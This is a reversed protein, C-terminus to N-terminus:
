EKKALDSLQDKMVALAESASLGDTRAHDAHTVLRHVMSDRRERTKAKLEEISLGDDNKTVGPGGAAIQRQINGAKAALIAVAADFRAEVYVPDKGDLVAAADTKLIVAKKVALDDMGDKIEVQAMRAADMLKSKAAVAADIRVPDNAEKLQAVAADARAKETSLTEDATKKAAAKEADFADVRATLKSITEAVKEPVEFEVAGDLTIKKTPMIAEQEVLVADASDLRIRAADGARAKDVIASHNYRINRQISDYPMGGWVAADDAKELDCTYGCSLARKGAEVAAIADKDEIIMDCALHAGDSRYDWPGNSPGWGAAIDRGDSSPNNGMHGVVLSKFNEPTVNSPPHDNCVPKLKLSELSDPHFVESPLRLERRTAGTADKYAFVGTSTLIARGKLFGEPTKQFTTTMWDMDTVRDFRHVGRSTILHATDSRDGVKKKGKDGEEEEEEEEEGVKEPDNVSSAPTQVGSADDSLTGKGKCLDCKVTKGDEQMEKSGHCKPCQKEGDTLTGSAGTGPQPKKAGEGPPEIISDDKDDDILSLLGGAANAVAEAEQQAARQKAAIVGARWVKGDKVVPYKYRKKTEQPESTDEALHVEAYAGWDDGNKGLLKNGDEGTFSWDGDKEVNGDSILSKAHAVGKKNVKLAM